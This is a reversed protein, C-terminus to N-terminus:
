SDRIGDVAPRREPEGQVALYTLVAVVRRDLGIQRTLDLKRFITTVHKEIGKVSLHLQGAIARNSMGQAILELVDLERPTLGDVTTAERRRVLGDVVSPDLVSQGGRVERLAGVIADMGSLRGDLLFAMRAAGERLLGVAFGDGRDSVVVIGLGPHVDRLHRAAAITAFAGVVPTRVSILLADPRVDDVLRVLERHDRARGVLTLEDFAALMCQLGDGVLSSDAALVVTIARRDPSRDADGVVPAGPARPGTGVFRRPPADGNPVVSTPLPHSPVFGETPHM